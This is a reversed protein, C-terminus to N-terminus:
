KKVTFYVHAKKMPQKFYSKGNLSTVYSEINIHHVDEQENSYVQHRAKHLIQKIDYKEKLLKLIKSQTSAIGSYRVRALIESDYMVEVNEGGFHVHADSDLQALIDIVRTLGDFREDLSKKRGDLRNLIDQIM